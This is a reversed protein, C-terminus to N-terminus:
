FYNSFEEKSPYNILVADRSGHFVFLSGAAMASAGNDFAVRIDSMSGAGGCSIIPVQSISSAKKILEIDFGSRMGDLDVSNLLIEGAGLREFNIIAEELKTKQNTKGGHSTLSYGGFRKKKIDLSICVSQRGFHNATEEILKPNEFASTNFVVKEAGGSIVQKVEDFNSLGGGVSFPMFAEDGIAKVLDLDISRKQQSATIDLLVLEDVNLDNFIKVANIPDGLYVSKSKNFKKTKVLKHGDILLVPIVRPRFKM